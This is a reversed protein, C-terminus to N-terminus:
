FLFHSLDHQHQLALLWSNLKPGKGEGSPTPARPVPSSGACNFPWSPGLLKLASFATRTKRWVGKVVPFAGRFADTRRPLSVRGLSPLLASHSGGSPVAHHCLRSCLLGSVWHGVHQISGQVLCQDKSAETEGDPFCSDHTM